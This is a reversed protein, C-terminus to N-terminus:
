ALLVLVAVGLVLCYVSFKWFHAQVVALATWRIATLGVAFSTLGALILRLTEASDVAHGGMLQLVLAGGIAPIALLFSFRAAEARPLGAWLAAAITSGSRSIGPLIAFVQATGILMAKTLSPARPVWPEALPGGPVSFRTSFLIGATVVLGAAAFVPSHFLDEIQSKFLLGVVVAPVTGAALSGLYGLARRDCKLLRLIERRYVVLISGLTGVHLIIDFFVDGERTGLFHQFLVLHGSSSVPLFETLGQVVALLLM